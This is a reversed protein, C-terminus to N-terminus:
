YVMTDCIGDGCLVWEMGPVVDGTISVVHQGDFERRFLTPIKKMKSCRREATQMGNANGAM